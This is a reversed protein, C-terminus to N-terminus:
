VEEVFAQQEQRIGTERRDAYDFIAECLFNPNRLLFVNNFPHTGDWNQPWDHVQGFFNM